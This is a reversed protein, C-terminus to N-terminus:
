SRGVEPRAPYLPDRRDGPDHKDYEDNACCSDIDTERVASMM